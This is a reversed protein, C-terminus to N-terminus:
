FSKHFKLVDYVDGIINVTVTDTKVVGNAYTVVFEFTAEGKRLATSGKLFSEEYLEGSAVTDTDMQMKVTKRYLSSNEQYGKFRSEINTVPYPSTNAKLVFAEGSYFDEPNNGLDLHIENWKDTHEVFGELTLAKVQIVVPVEVKDYGDDVIGIFTYDDKEVKDITYCSSQGSEMDKEQLVSESTGNGKQMKLEIDLPDNDKDTPKLCISLKDGEYVTSPTYTITLEPLNNKITVTKTENDKAGHEDTVTLRVEYEDVTKFTFTPNAETSMKTWQSTGKIRYEYLHTLKDNEADSSKDTFKVSDIRTAPNPNITFNAEPAINEIKVQKTISNSDGETDTVTLRVDYTGVKPFKYSHDAATSITSWTETGQLKIEYKYTLKDGEPDSSKDKINVTTLRNTPNPTADFDAIPNLNEVQVNIFETDSAGNVDTVTQRVEYTGVEPFKYSTDKDDSLNTWSSSGKLRIEYKHTISERDPDSANSKIQVTELRTTPNPTATFGAEPPRNKVDIEREFTDSNYKDSVTLKIKWKGKVDLVKTPNKSTSFSIYRSLDPRTYEWKYTLKDNEPDSSQDTFKVKTDNYVTSPSYKFKALPPENPIYSLRAQKGLFFWYASAAWRKKNNEEPANVAYWVATQSEDSDVSTYTRNTTFYKGRISASAKQRPETRRLVNTGIMELKNADIGSSLSIEGEAFERNSFNFPLNLTTYVIHNDVRKVIYLAWDKEKRNDPFLEDLPLYADFGVGDYRMNCDYQNDKNTANTSCENWVGSGQNNYELDETASLNKQLTGYVKVDEGGVEQAVIYTEQNLKTHKKHGFLVAWGQFNVYQRKGKGFDKSVIKFGGSTYKHSYVDYALSKGSTAPMAKDGYNKSWGNKVSSEVDYPSSAAYVENDYVSFVIIFSM